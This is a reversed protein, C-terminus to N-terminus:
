KINRNKHCLTISGGLKMSINRLNSSLFVRVLIKQLLIGRIASSFDLEILNHYSPDQVISLWFTSEKMLSGLFLSKIMVRWFFHIAFAEADHNKVPHIFALRMDLLTEYAILAVPQSKVGQKKNVIKKKNTIPIPDAGFGVKDKYWNLLPM